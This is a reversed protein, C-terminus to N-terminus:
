WEVDFLVALKQRARHLRSKVTGKPVDLMVAIEGMEYGRVYLALVDAQEAPLMDRLQQLELDLYETSMEALCGSIVVPSYSGSILTTRMNRIAGRLFRDVAEPGDFAYAEPRTALNHLIYALAGVVLHQVEEIDQVNVSARIEDCVHKFTDPDLLRCYAQVIDPRTEELQDLMELVEGKVEWAILDQESGRMVNAVEEEANAGPCLLQAIGQRPESPKSLRRIM